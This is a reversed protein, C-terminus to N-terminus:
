RLLPLTQHIISTVHQHSLLSANILLHYLAPQRGDGGYYKRLYSEQEYDRQEILQRAITHNLHFQDMVHAIRDPL